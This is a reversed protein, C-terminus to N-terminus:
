LGAPPPPPPGDGGNRNQMHEQMKERQQQKLQAWEQKQQDNLVGEIKADTDAHISKFKAMKDPRSLTTDAQLAQFQQNRDVLIPKIQAQQDASLKLKATMHALQKSPDPPMMRHGHMGSSPPPPAAEPSPPASAQALVVSASTGLLIMGTLAFRSAFKYM